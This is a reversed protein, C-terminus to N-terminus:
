ADSVGITPPDRTDPNVVGFTAPIHAYFLRIKQEHLLRMLQQAEQDTVLFEVEVTLSGALEFFSRHLKEARDLAQRAGAWMWFTPDRTTM